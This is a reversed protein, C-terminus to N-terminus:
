SNYNKLNFKKITKEIVQNIETSIKWKYNLYVYVLTILVSKLTINVLPYFQFDWFYFGAFVFIIIVFSKLTNKTFPFLNLKNVVFLLKVTNYVMVSILTAWAAGVIGFPPIMLM